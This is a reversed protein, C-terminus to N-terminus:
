LSSMWMQPPCTLEQKKLFILISSIHSSANSQVRMPPHFLWTRMLTLLDVQPPCPLAENKLFIFIPVIHSSPIQAVHATTQGDRVQSPPTPDGTAVFPQLHSNQRDPAPVTVSPRTLGKEKEQQWPRTTERLLTQFAGPVGM